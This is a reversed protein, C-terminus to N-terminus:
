SCDKPLLLNGLTGQLCQFFVSRKKRALNMRRHITQIVSDRKVCRLTKRSTQMFMGYMTHIIMECKQCINEM